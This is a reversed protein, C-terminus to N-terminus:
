EDIERTNLVGTQYVMRTRAGLAEPSAHSCVVVIAPVTDCLGLPPDEFWTYTPYVGHTQKFEVVATDFADSRTELYSKAIQDM